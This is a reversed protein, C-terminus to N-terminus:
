FGRYEISTFAVGNDTCLFKPNRNTQITVFAHFPKFAPFAEDKRKLLYILIRRLCEEVFYIFSVADGMSKTPMSCIDSYSFTLM